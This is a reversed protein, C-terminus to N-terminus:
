KNKDTLDKDPKSPQGSKQALPVLVIGKPDGKSGCTGCFHTGKWPGLRFIRMILYIVTGAIVVIAVIDQWTFTMYCDM